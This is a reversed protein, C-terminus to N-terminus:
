GPSRAPLRFRPSTGKPTMATSPKLNPTIRPDWEARLRGQTDYAYQVVAKEEVKSAAPNWAAFVVEKLRGEYDKWEGEGEGTATTTEAYKLFLVRCGKNVTPTCSLEAPHPAVVEVPHTVTGGKILVTKFKYTVTSTASAGQSTTATWTSHAWRGVRANETDAVLLAGRGDVAIFDPKKLQGPNSGTSGVQTLYEGKTNFEQLRNLVSDAVWVNGESDTAIGSPTEFQGNGTGATGFTFMGEGTSARYEVFRHKKGDAVWVHGSTDTAIGLPEALVYSGTKSAERVYGGTENFEVVRNDGTDTVWVNNSADVAIGQPAKLTGSGETGAKRLYSGGETFEEIRNNGTDAIWLNGKSDIAISDPQKFGGVSSSEYGFQSVYEGQPDFKEVHSNKQDLVWVDGKPDATVGTPVVLQGTSPGQWGIEGYYVPASQLYNEARAFRTSTGAASDKLTYSVPVKQENVESTLSLNVDGIPAEFEEKANLLFVMTGGNPARLVMDGNSLEELEEASGLTGLWQPGLGGEVGATLDRSSYSRSVSLGSGLSADTATMSFNGSQPDLSGPGVSVPAAHHVYVTFDQHEVNGAKDTALVTLTHPGASLLGGNITWEGTATCPGATCSGNPQGAEAGDIGLKLSAVGSSPEGTKGDTAEAKLKIIGEGIQNGAPLNTFKIGQPGLADVRVTVNKEGTMKLANEARGQISYEGSPMPSTFGPTTTYYTYKGKFEEPCQDGKCDKETTMLFTERSWTNGDAVAFSVGVGTDKATMEFATNTFPGIWEKNGPYLINNRHVITGNPEKIEITPSETNFTITPSETQSIWVHALYLRDEFGGAGEATIRKVFEVLNKNAGQSPECTTTKIACIAAPFLTTEVNNALLGWNEQAGSPAYAELLTESETFYDREMTETELEFIKSTGQTEYQYDGWEGNKPALGGGEVIAEYGEGFEGLGFKSTSFGEPCKTLGYACPVWAPSLYALFTADDMTPDVVLPYRFQGPKRAVTLEITDTSALSMTVPVPTGEADQATFASVITIAQGERMVRVSRSEHQELTAGEPLGVKFFLHEPSRVSFLTSYWEFGDTTPKALMGLDQVGAQPNAMGGYFVGAHDVAGHGGLPTGQETVPTLSVGRDVLSAGESADKPLLVHALGVQPQFGGGAEHLGLDLPTHGGDETELAIPTISEVLAHRGEGADVSMSFDSPFGTAQQGAALAPPGGSPVEIMHPYKEQVTAEAAQPTLNEFETSSKERAEGPTPGPQSPPEQTEESPPPQSGSIIQVGSATLPRLSSRHAPKTAARRSPVHRHKRHHKHHRSGHHGKRGSKAGVPLTAAARSASTKPSGVSSAALGVYGVSGVLCSVVCVVLLRLFRNM